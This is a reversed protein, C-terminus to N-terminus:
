VASGEMTKYWSKQSEFMNRYLGDKMSVLEGHSGSEVVKGDSIVLIEDAIKAAGLRHTIYITFRGQNIQNFMEYVKSEAVPDLAATPEDLIHIESQSYMMRAIAVRQWEGGSIDVGNEKIKGLHTNIGNNLKMKLHNLGILNLTEKIKADNEDMCNGLIINEKLTLAYQNFDQFVVSVMSKIAAFDYNKISLGNILIEGDFNDYLGVILKIITSKGAGNEGVLSYNKGNCLLFSCNKLIYRETNPYKFSVNKFELTEFEFNQLHRPLAYADKKESLAFFENFDVLYENSRAHDQMISSLRWSMSQVLGFIANILAIFIGLEMSQNHLSPLLITIIIAIIILTVISGSKATVYSKKEIKKEIKYSQSYLKDFKDQLKTSYNFLDREDAFDRSTLISSFYNYRRQINKAEKELEYNQKGTKRALWFLPISILIILLGGWFTSAMVIALLSLSTIVLSVGLLINEFGDSFRETPDSSIRNILDQTTSNETHMYDLATYKKLVLEQIKLTMKNKGTLSIINAIPPMLKTFLVYLSIFIIPMVIDSSNRNGSFIDMAINIFNALILAFLAPMLSNLVSYFITFLSQVPTYKISIFVFDLSRYKKSANM